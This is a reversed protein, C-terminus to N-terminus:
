RELDLIRGTFAPGCSSGGIPNVGVRIRDATSPHCPYRGELVPRGDMRVLIQESQNLASGPEFLSGFTIALRHSRGYDIEVPVGEIDGVGWHDFGFLVHTSDLYHVYAIDGAGTVGTVVLPERTGLAGRPFDVSMEVPGYRGSRVLPPLADFGVQRAGSVRGRFEHGSATSGLANVGVVATEPSSPYFVQDVNLLPRGDFIVVLRSALDDQASSGTAGGALSGMWLTLVHRALPDYAVSESRPGGGGYHDLAFAVHGAGDYICYLLDSEKGDGTALIPDAGPQTAAPLFVTLEIPDAKTFRPAIRVPRELPLREVRAISGSFAQEMGGADWALRGLTLDAPSSDYCVLSARLAEIGGVRIDLDRKVDGYDEPSWNAYVPHNMPPLLSGCRAEVVIKGDAPLDFEKGALRGTGAHFFNLRARNDPLYEIELWDRQDTQRGTEFLPEPLLPRHAPLALELRLGGFQAGHARQWAFAPWNALRALGALRGEHVYGGSYVALSFLMSLTAVLGLGTAILKARGSDAGRQGIVLAGVGALILAANAFDGPYRATTGFFCALFALNALTALALAAVIARLGPRDGAEAGRPFLFAAAAFWIWPLYRLTGYPQGAPASFFPFYSEWIGPNFLYYIVHPALFRLSIQTLQTFEEGALQYHMGFEAVSGFRAWNYYLLGFGCFAPPLFTWLLARALAGPRQASGGDRRWAGYLVPIILVVFSALYNPRAGLTLGFLLGGMGMWAFAHTPSHLARYVAALM